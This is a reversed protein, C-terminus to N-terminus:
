QHQLSVPVYNAASSAAVPVYADADRSLRFSHRRELSDRAARTAATETVRARTAIDYTPPSSSEQPQPRQQAATPTYSSGLVAPQYSQALRQSSAGDYTSAVSSPTYGAARVVSPVFDRAADAAPRYQNRATTAPSYASQMIAPVYAPAPAPRSPLQPERREVVVWDQLRDQSPTAEKAGSVRPIPATPEAGAGAGGGAGTTVSPRDCASADATDVAPPCTPPDAAVFAPGSGERVLLRLVQLGAERTALVADEFEAGCTIRVADGEDDTFTVAARQAKAGLIAVMTDRALPWELRPCRLSFRHTHAANRLKIVFRSPQASRTLQADAQLVWAGRVQGGRGGDRLSDACAM